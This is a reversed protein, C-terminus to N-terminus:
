YPLKSDLSLNRLESQKLKELTKDFNDLPCEGRDLKKDAFDIHSGVFGGGGTVGIM